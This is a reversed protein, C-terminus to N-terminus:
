QIKAPFLLCVAPENNNDNVQFQVYLSISPYEPLVVLSLAEKVHVSSNLPCPVSNKCADAQPLPFPVKVGAIIGYVLNTLSKFQRTATFELTLTVNDNKKFICPLSSCGTLDLTVDTVGSSGCDKYPIKDALAVGIIVVYCIIQKLM